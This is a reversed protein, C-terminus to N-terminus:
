RMVTVSARDFINTYEKMYQDALSEAEFLESTDMNLAHVDRRDSGFPPNQAVATAAWAYAKVKDPAVGVGRSYVQSLHSSHLRM